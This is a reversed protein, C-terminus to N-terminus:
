LEGIEKLRKVCAIMHAPSNVIVMRRGGWSRENNLPHHDITSQSVPMVFARCPRGITTVCVYQGSAKLAGLGMKAIQDILAEQAPGTECRVIPYPVTSM